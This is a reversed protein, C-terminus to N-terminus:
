DEATRPITVTEVSDVAAAIEAETPKRLKRFGDPETLVDATVFDQTVVISLDQSDNM